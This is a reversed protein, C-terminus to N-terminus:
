NHLKEPIRRGKFRNMSDLIAFSSPRFIFWECIWDFSEELKKASSKHSKVNESDNGDGGRLAQSRVLDKKKGGIALAVGSVHWGRKWSSQPRLLDGLICDNCDNAVSCHNTEKAKLSKHASATSHVAWQSVKCGAYVSQPSQLSKDRAVSLDLCWGARLICVDVRTM